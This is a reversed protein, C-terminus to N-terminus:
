QSPKGFISDTISKIVDVVKAEFKYKPDKLTGSIKIIGFRGAEGIIATAITKFIDKESSEEEQVQVELTSDIFGDFGIKVPGTINALNSKLTLNDTFIYKNQVTFNCYGESFAINAFDKRFLLVGLGKFLDLQWLKGESLLINGEGRIRSLDNASGNIKAQAQITGSIDKERVATDLKLNEIKINKIEANIWYPLQQNNLDMKASAEITGHYLFLQMLPVQALGEAQTYNLLFNGSKLGYASLSSSSLEAQIACSKINNINGGLKLKAQIIGAPKIQELQTKHKKLIAKIDKLNVNLGASIDTQLRSSEKININGQLSFKSNLWKGSFGSIDIVRDNLAFNSQLYLDKSTLELQIKPSQFNALKGTTKYTIERFKFNLEPWNVADATFNFQGTIDKLPADIKELEVIANRIDLQGSVKPTQTVPLETQIALSLKGEGKIDAPFSFNFKDNLVKQFSNLDLATAININLLPNNFDTLIGNAELPVGLVKASLKDSTLGSNNFEIEGCIDVARDVVELGSIDLKAINANGSYSVLQKNKLSYKLNAKISSNLEILINGQSLSINRNQSELDAQLIDDKLNLNVLADITGKPNYLRFNQYYSSFDQLSFDKITIKVTLEKKRIKFEGSANIQMRPNAPIESKLNFKVSAPLSLSMSLDLNDVSKNFPVPLANDQFDIRAGTINIKYVFLNLRKSTAKTERGPFLNLLNLTNDSARELFIIPSKLRVTPLIIQKKFIPLLLFTCSAEKLSILKKARDYIVLNRLVLGKFINFQLSELTIEKQIEKELRQIVLSKIKTPLISKNLYIIVASIILVIVLFIIFLKKRM